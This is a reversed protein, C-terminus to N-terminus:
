RPGTRPAAAALLFPFATGLEVVDFRRALLKRFAKAGWHHLHGPDDGLRGINRGRALNSLRFFPEHPVTVIARRPGLRAIEDLAGAPDDLHELVQVCLVVDFSTGLFGLDHISGERAEIRPFLARLRDLDERNTDVGAFRAAPFIGSLYGSVFGEGIGVELVSRAPGAREFMGVLREMFRRILWRKLPDRARYKPTSFRDFYDDPIM